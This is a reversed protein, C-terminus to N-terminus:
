QCNPLTALPLSGLSLLTDLKAPKPYLDDANRDLGGKLMAPATKAKAKAKAITRPRHPRRIQLMRSSLTTPPLAVSEPEIPPLLDDVGSRDCVVCYTLRDFTRGQCEPCPGVSPLWRVPDATFEQDAFVPWSCAMGVLVQPRPLRRALEEAFDRGTNSEAVPVPSRRFTRALLRDVEVEEADNAMRSVLWEAREETTLIELPESADPDALDAIIGASREDDANRPQDSDNGISAGALRVNELVRTPDLQRPLLWRSGDESLTLRLRNAVLPSITVTPGTPHDAWPEVLGRREADLCDDWLDMVDRGTAEALTTMPVMSMGFTALTALLGCHPLDALADPDIERRYTRRSLGLLSIAARQLNVRRGKPGHDVWVMGAAEAGDLAQEFADPALTTANRLRKVPVAGVTSHHQDWRSPNNWPNRIAALALVIREAPRLPSTDPSRFLATAM